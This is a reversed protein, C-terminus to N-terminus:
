KGKGVILIKFTLSNLRGVWRDLSYHNKEKLNEWRFGKDNLNLLLVNKVTLIGLDNIRPEKQFISMENSNRGNAESTRVDGEEIQLVFSHHIYLSNPFSHGKLFWRQAVQEPWKKTMHTNTKWLVSTRVTMKLHRIPRFRSQTM